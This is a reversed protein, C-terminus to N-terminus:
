KTLLGYIFESLEQIKNKIEEVDKLNMNSVILCANNVSVSKAISDQKENFYKDIRQVKDNYLKEVRDM